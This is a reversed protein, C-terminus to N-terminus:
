WDKEEERREKEQGGGDSRCAFSKMKRGIILIDRNLLSLLDLDCAVERRAVLAGRGQRVLVPCRRGAQTLTRRLRIDMSQSFVKFFISVEFLGLAQLQQLDGYMDRHTYWGLEISGNLRATREIGAKEKIITEYISIVREFIADTKNRRNTKKIGLSEISASQLQLSSRGSSANPTRHRPSTFGPRIYECSSKRARCCPFGRSPLIAEARALFCEAAAALASFGCVDLYESTFIISLPM